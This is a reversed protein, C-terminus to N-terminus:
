VLPRPKKVLDRMLKKISFRLKNLCNSSGISKSMILLSNGISHITWRIWRLNCFEAPLKYSLEIEFCHWLLSFYFIFWFGIIGHSIWSVSDKCDDFLMKQNIFIVLKLVYKLFFTKFENKIWKVWSHSMAFNIFFRSWFLLIIRHLMGKFFSYFDHQHKLSCRLQLWLNNKYGGWVFISSFVVM